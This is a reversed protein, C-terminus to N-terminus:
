AHDVRSTHQISAELCESCREERVVRENRWHSAYSLLSDALPSGEEYLAAAWAELRELPDSM